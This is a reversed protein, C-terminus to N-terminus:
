HQNIYQECAKKVSDLGATVTWSEWAYFTHSDNDVAIENGGKHNKMPSESNYPLIILNWNNSLEM